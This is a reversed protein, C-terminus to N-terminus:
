LDVLVLIVLLPLAAGVIVVACFFAVVLGRFEVFVFRRLGFVRGFVEFCRWAAM